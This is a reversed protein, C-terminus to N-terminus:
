LMRCVTTAFWVLALLPTAYRLPLSKSYMGGSSVLRNLGSDRSNNHAKNVISSSSLSPLAAIAAGGGGGNSGTSTPQAKKNHQMLTTTTTKASGLRENTSSSSPPSLLGGNDVKLKAGSGDAEVRTTKAGSHRQQEGSTSSSPAAGHEYDTDYEVFSNEDYYEENSYDDEDNEDNNNDGNQNESGNNPEGKEKGQSNHIKKGKPVAISVIDSEKRIDFVLDVCPVKYHYNKLGGGGTGGVGSTGGVGGGGGGAVLGAAVLQERDACPLHEVVLDTVRLCDYGKPGACIEPLSISEAYTKKNALLWALACDCELPNQEFLIKKVYHESARALPYGHQQQQMNLVVVSSNTNTNTNYVNDMNASAAAHQHRPLILDGFTSKNLKTLYNGRLDVLDINFAGNFAKPRIVKVRANLLSLKGINNARHFANAEIEQM